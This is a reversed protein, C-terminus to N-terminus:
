RRIARAQIGDLAYHAGLELPFFNPGHGVPLGVALPIGRPRCADAFIRALGQELSFEPRQEIKPHTLWNFTARDAIPALMTNSEDDCNTFDGLVVAVAGELMGAQEIQTVYREIRYLKEGIDEFFLIRGHSAPQLRTGALTTWLTLNGGVLPATITKAPPTDLWRLPLTIPQASESKVLDITAQWQETAVAELRSAPMVAHITRWNWRQRVYEHLATVDSYGVLTKRAQPVPLKDLHEFLRAAGWGGRATWVIDIAPDLALDHLAKARSADTGASLFDRELTQPHVRVDFGEAVLREVGLELEAAGVPSSPAFVGVRLM